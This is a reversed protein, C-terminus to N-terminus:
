VLEHRRTWGTFDLGLLEFTQHLSTPTDKSAKEDHHDVVVVGETGTLALDDKLEVLVVTKGVDRAAIIEERYDSAKAGWSLGRDHVAVEDRDALLRAIEVMELDRGGLFYHQKTPM